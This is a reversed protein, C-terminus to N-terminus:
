GGNVCIVSNCGVFGHVIGHTKTVQQAMPGPIAVEGVRPLRPVDALRLVLPNSSLCKRHIVQVDLVRRILSVQTAEGPAIRALQFPKAAHYGQLNGSHFDQGEQSALIWLSGIGTEGEAQFILPLIDLAHRGVPGSVKGRQFHWDPCLEEWGQRPNGCQIHITFEALEQSVTDLRAANGYPIKHVGGHMDVVRGQTGRAVEDDGHDVLISVRVQFVVMFTHDAPTKVAACFTQFLLLLKVICPADVFRGDFTPIDQDTGCLSQSEM